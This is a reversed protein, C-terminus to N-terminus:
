PAGSVVGGPPTIASESAMSTSGTWVESRDISWPDNMLDTTNVNSTMSYKRDSDDNWYMLYTCLPNNNRISSIVNINDVQGTGRYGYETFAMVKGKAKLAGYVALTGFTQTSPYYDMGCIDVYSDGPYTNLYAGSGENPAYVWLLNNLGKTNTFCNYMHQWVKIYSVSSNNNGWWFWNGNMEHFPRWLIVAGSDQFQKLGAAVKDLKAMYNSYVASGPTILQEM